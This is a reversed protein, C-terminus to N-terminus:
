RCVPVFCVPKRACTLLAPPVFALVTSPGVTAFLSRTSSFCFASAHGRVFPPRGCFSPHPQHTTHSWLYVNVRYPAGPYRYHRDSELVISSASRIAAAATNSMNPCDHRLIANSLNTFVRHTNNIKLRENAEYFVSFLYVENCRKDM